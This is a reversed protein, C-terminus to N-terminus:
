VSPKGKSQHSQLANPIQKMQRRLSSLHQAHQAVGCTFFACKCIFTNLWMHMWRHSLRDGTVHQTLFHPFIHFKFTDYCFDHSKMPCTKIGGLFISFFGRVYLHICKVVNLIWVECTLNKIWIHICNQWGSVCDVVYIM